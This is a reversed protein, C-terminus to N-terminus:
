EPYYELVLTKHATQKNCTLSTMPVDSTDGTTFTLVYSTVTPDLEGLTSLLPKFHVTVGSPEQIMSVLIPKTTPASVASFPDSVSPDSTVGNADDVTCSVTYTLSADLPTEILVGEHDGIGNYNGPTTTCSISSLPTASGILSDVGAFM